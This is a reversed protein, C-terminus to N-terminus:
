AARPRNRARAEMEDLAREVTSSRWRHSVGRAGPADPAPFEGRTVLERLWRTSYGILAAVQRCTLFGDLAM